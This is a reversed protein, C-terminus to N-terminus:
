IPMDIERGARDNVKCIPDGPRWKDSRLPRFCTNCSECSVIEYERGEEVKVPWDPDTILQRGIGVLDAKERILISEAVESTNIRGVAIVPINVNQKIGEALHEFTGM